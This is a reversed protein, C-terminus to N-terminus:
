HPKASAIPHYQLIQIVLSSLVELLGNTAPAQLTKKIDMYELKNVLPNIEVKLTASLNKASNNM